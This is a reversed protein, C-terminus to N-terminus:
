VVIRALATFCINFIDFQGDPNFPIAHAKPRSGDGTQQGPKDKAFPMATPKSIGTMPIGVNSEQKQV